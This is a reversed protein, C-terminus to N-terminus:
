SSSHRRWSPRILEAAPKNASRTEARRTEKDAATQRVVHSPRRAAIRRFRTKIEASPKLPSHVLKLEPTPRRVAVQEPREDVDGGGNRGCCFKQAGARGVTGRIGVSVWVCVASGAVADAGTACACFVPRWAAKYVARAEVSRCSRQRM